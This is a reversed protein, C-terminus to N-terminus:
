GRRMSHLFLAVLGGDVGQHLFPEPAAMVLGGDAGDHGNNPTSDVGGTEAASVGGDPQQTDMVENGQAELFKFDHICFNYSGSGVSFVLHELARTDFSQTGVTQTFKAFPAIVQGPTTYDAAVSSGASTMLDFGSTFCGFFNDPCSTATTIAASVGVGGRPPSDISFAVQTIGLDKADFKKLVETRDQNKVPFILGIQAWGGPSVMGSLCLTGAKPQSLTATSEGAPTNAALVPCNSGCSDSIAVARRVFPFGSPVCPGVNCPDTASNGADATSTGLTGSGDAKDSDSACAAQLGLAALLSLIVLNSTTRHTM